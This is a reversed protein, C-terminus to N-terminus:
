STRAPGRSTSAAAPRTLARFRDDDRLSAFDPSTVATARADPDLEIARALDALSQETKGLRAYAAARGLHSRAWQPSLALAKTYVAVAEQHRGLQQLVLGAVHLPDPDSPDLQIVRELAALAEQPKGLRHLAIGKRYHADPLAPEAIIARGYWNAAREYDGEAYWANGRAICDSAELPQGFEELSDLRRALDALTRAVEPAIEQTIDV